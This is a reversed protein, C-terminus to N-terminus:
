LKAKLDCDDSFNTQNWFIFNKAAGLPNDDALTYTGTSKQAM